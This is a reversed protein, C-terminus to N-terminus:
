LKTIIDKIYKSDCLFYQNKNTDVSLRKMEEAISLTTPSPITDGVYYEHDSPIDISNIRDLYLIKKKYAQAIECHINSSLTIPSIYIDGGNHAISLSEETCQFAAVTIKKFDNIINLQQKCEAMDKNLQETNTAADELLLVLSVSPNTRFAIMFSLMIKKILNQQQKYTGIYYFKQTKNLLGTNYKKNCSRVINQYRLYTVKSTFIKKLKDLHYKSSVLLKDFKKTKLINIAKENLIEIIPIIISKKIRSDNVILNLPAQQIVVDYSELDITINEEPYVISNDISNDLTIYQVTLSSGPIARLNNILYQSSIGHISIDRYPGIYLIKM